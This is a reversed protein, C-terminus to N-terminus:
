RNKYEIRCIILTKREKKAKDFAIRIGKAKSVKGQKLVQFEFM